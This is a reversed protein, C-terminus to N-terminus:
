RSPQNVYEAELEGLMKRIFPLWWWFRKMHFGRAKMDAIAVETGWGLYRVKYAAVTVGTRDVGDHCHLFTGCGRAKWKVLEALVKRINTTTPPLFGTMPIHKFMIGIQGCWLDEIKPQAGSLVYSQLNIVLLIGQNTKLSGIDDICEPRSGRFLGKDFEEFGHIM